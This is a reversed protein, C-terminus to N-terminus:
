KTEGAEKKEKLANSFLVFFDTKLEECIQMLLATNIDPKKLTKYLTSRDCNIKKALWAVGRGDDKLQQRILTGISIHIDKKM